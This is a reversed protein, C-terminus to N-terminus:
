SSSELIQTLKVISIGHAVLKGLSHLRQLAQRYINESVQM